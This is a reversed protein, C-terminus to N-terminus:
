HHVNCIANYGVSYCRELSQNPAHSAENSVEPTSIRRTCSQVAVNSKEEPNVSHLNYFHSFDQRSYSSSSLNMSDSCQAIEQGRGIQLCAQASAAHWAHDQHAMHLSSKKEQNAGQCIRDSTISRREFHIPLNVDVIHM